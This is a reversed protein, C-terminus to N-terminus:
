STCLHLMWFFIVTRNVVRRIRTNSATAFVIFSMLHISSPWWSALLRRFRRPCLNRGVRSWSFLLIRITTWIIFQLVVPPLSSDSESPCGLLYLFSRLLQTSETSRRRGNKESCKQISAEETTNLVEQEKAWINTQTTLIWPLYIFLPCSILILLQGYSMPSGM